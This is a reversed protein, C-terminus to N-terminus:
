KDRQARFVSNRPVASAPSAVVSSTKLRVYSVASHFILSLIEFNYVTWPVSVYVRVYAHVALDSFTRGQFLASV